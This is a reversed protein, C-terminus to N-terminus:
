KYAFIQVHLGKSNLFEFNSEYENLDDLSELMSKAPGKAM